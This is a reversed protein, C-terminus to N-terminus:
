APHPHLTFATLSLRLPPPAALLLATLNKALIFGQAPHPYLIFQSIPSPALLHCPLGSPSTSRPRLSAALSHDRMQAAGEEGWMNAVGAVWVKWVGCRGWVKGEVDLQEWTEVFATMHSQKISMKEM